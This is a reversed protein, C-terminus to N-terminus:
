SHGEMSHFNFFAAGAANLHRLIEEDSMDIVGAAVLEALGHTFIWSHLLFDGQAGKVISDLISKVGPSFVAVQEGYDRMSVAKNTLAVSEDASIAFHFLRSEERAFAVYGVALDLAPNGTRPVRQSAQLMEVARLKALVHLEEMSGIVSYIPMTSSGMRAAISRASVVEWGAERVIQVAAEVIGKKEIATRAGM